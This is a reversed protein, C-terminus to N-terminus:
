RVISVYLEHKSLTRRVSTNTAIINEEEASVYTPKEDTGILKFVSHQCAHLQVIFVLMKREYMFIESEAPNLM